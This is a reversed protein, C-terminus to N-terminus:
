LERLMKKIDGARWARLRASVAVPAPYRGSKVGSFWTSRGVGVVELVDDLRLLAHDPLAELERADM